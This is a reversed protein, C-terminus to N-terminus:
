VGTDRLGRLPVELSTTTWESALIPVVICVPLLSVRSQPLRFFCFGSAQFTSNTSSGTSASAGAFFAVSGNISFGDQGEFENADIGLMGICAELAIGTDRELAKFSKLEDQAEASLCTRM